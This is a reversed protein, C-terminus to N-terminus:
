QIRRWRVRVFERDTVILEMPIDWPEIALASVRQCQHAIGALLPSSTHKGRKFSFARDYFGGGMGLRRGQRDWGVLPVLALDLKKAPLERANAPPELIGYANKRLPCSLTYQRFRMCGKASVVPLFCNKNQSLAFRLLPLVSIEGDNAFYFAINKASRFEHSQALKFFLQLAARRQASKSLARRADRM